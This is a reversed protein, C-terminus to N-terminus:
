RLLMRPIYFSPVSSCIQLCCHLHLCVSCVQPCLPPLLPPSSHLSHCQFIHMVVHLISLWHANATHSLSSMGLATHYGLSTPHHSTTPLNLLSSVYTHRHSIWPTTHFFGVCYQVAIIRWNFFFFCVFEFHFFLVNNPLLTLLLSTKPCSDTRSYLIGEVPGFSWEGRFLGLQFCTKEKM